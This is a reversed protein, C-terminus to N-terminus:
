TIKISNRCITEPIKTKKSIERWNFGQAKLPLTQSFIEYNNELVDNIKDLFYDSFPKEGCIEENLECAGDIVDKKLNRIVKLCHWSVHNYLLSSFKCDREKETFKQLAQWILINADDVIEYYRNTNGFFKRAINRIINKNNNFIERIADEDGGVAKEILSQEM